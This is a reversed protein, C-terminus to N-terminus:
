FPSIRVRVRTRSEPRGDREAVFVLDYSGLFGPGPQWSWRGTLPDLTSGVPLPRLVGGVVHYGRYVLGRDERDRGLEIELRGTEPIELEFSGGAAGHVLSRRATGFGRGAPLPTPDAPVLDLDAARMAGGDLPLGAGAPSSETNLVSFFRSGIGDARGLDDSVLWGITHLGNDYATTDIWIYGVAGLSNLYGPFSAAIDSRYHNYSPHGISIGDIYATVTSGDVPIMAPLPTLAWGFNVYDSGSVTGGQPPTDIAGFPKSAAANNCLITKRGLETVHGEGDVARVVLTVPGNGAGPLFNTLLMYGWGARYSLPHGPYALEVDPRAGEVFVADGIFVLGPPSSPEGPVATRYLKVAAPGIDDLAWGCVPISSAVNAGDGPTEFAGFPSGSAGAGHVTLTVAITQPSNVAQGSAVTIAGTYTGATLGAPRVSVSVTGTGSGSAPAAALWLRDASATWAMVGTGGNSVVVTQAPTFAGTGAPDAGFSLRTRSLRISGTPPVVIAFAADSVDSKAGDLTSVRVLCENSLTSPVTWDLKGTNAVSAAVTSWSAGLDTSYEVIVNGSVSSSLWTISRSAGTPWFEGGNPSVVTLGGPVYAYMIEWNGGPKACFALHGGGSRDVAVCPQMCPVSGDTVAYAGTWVGALRADAMIRDGETWAVLLDGTAPNVAVTPEISAAASQSVNVESGLTGDAAIRRVLIEQNGTTVDDYAVYTNGADDVAITFSCWDLGTDKVRIPDTWGRPDAPTANRTYWLTSTHMYGYVMHATGSADFKIKPFYGFQLNSFDHLRQIASWQGAATRYRLMLLWEGAEDAQNEQWVVFASGDVPNVGVGGYVSSGTAAGSVNTTATKVGGEVAVHFIDADIMAGRGDHFMLHLDGTPSVATVPFGSEPHEWNLREITTPASWSGSKNTAYTFNRSGSWEYWTLYAHGDRDIGLSHGAGNGPGPYEFTSDTSSNSVNVPVFAAGGEAVAAARPRQASVALAALLIAGVLISSKAAAKGIHMPLDGKEGRKKNLRVFM